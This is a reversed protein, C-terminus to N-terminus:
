LRIGGRQPAPSLNIAKTKRATDRFFKQDRSRSVRRRFSM